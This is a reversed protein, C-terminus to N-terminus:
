STDCFMLDYSGLEIRDGYELPTEQTLDLYNLRITPNPEIKQNPCLYYDGNKYQIIAHIPAISHGPLIFDAQQPDSGIKIEPQLISFPQFRDELTKADIEDQSSLYDIPLLKAFPQELLEATTFGKQDSNDKPKLNSVPQQKSSRNKYLTILNLGLMLVFLSLGFYLWKPNHNTHLISIGGGMFLIINIVIFNWDSTPRVAIAQKQPQSKTAQVEQAEQGTSAVNSAALYAKVFDTPNEWALILLHQFTSDAIEQKEKDAFLQQEALDAIISRLSREKGDCEIEQHRPDVLFILHPLPHHINPHPVYIQNQELCLYPFLPEKLLLAYQQCLHILTQRKITLASETMFQQLTCLNTIPYTLQRYRSKQTVFPCLFSYADTHQDTDALDLLSDASDLQIHLYAHWPSTEIWYENM